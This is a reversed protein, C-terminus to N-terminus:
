AVYENRGCHTYSQMEMFPYDFTLAHPLYNTRLMIYSFM